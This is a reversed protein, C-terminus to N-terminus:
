ASANRHTKIAGFHLHGQRAPGPGYPLNTCDGSCTLFNRIYRVSQMWSGPMSVAPRNALVSQVIVLGNSIMSGSGSEVRMM